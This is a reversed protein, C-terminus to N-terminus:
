FFTTSFWNSPFFADLIMEEFIERSDIFRFYSHRGYQTFSIKVYTKNSPVDASLLHCDVWHLFTQCFSPFKLSIFNQFFIALYKTSSFSFLTNEKRGNIKVEHFGKTKKFYKQLFNWYKQLLNRDFFSDFRFTWFKSFTNKLKSLHFCLL